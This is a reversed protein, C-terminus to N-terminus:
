NFASTLSLLKYVSARNLTEADHEQRKNRRKCIASVCFVHNDCRKCLYTGQFREMWGKAARRM